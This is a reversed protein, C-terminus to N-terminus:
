KVTTLPEAFVGAGPVAASEDGGGRGNAVAAAAGGTGAIEGALVGAAEAGGAALSMSVRVCGSEAKPPFLMGAFAGAGM